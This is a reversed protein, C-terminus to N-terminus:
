QAGGKIHHIAAGPPNTLAKYWDRPFAEPTNLNDWFRQWISQFM